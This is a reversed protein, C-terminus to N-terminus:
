TIWSFTAERKGLKKVLWDMPGTVAFTLPTLTAFGQKILCVDSNPTACRYASELTWRSMDCLGERCKYVEFQSATELTAVQVGRLTWTPVNLNLLPAEWPEDALLELLNIALRAATYYAEYGLSQYESWDRAVLSVAIGKYGRTVGELVAGVTGSSLVDWLGINPGSNVGSIVFDFKRGLSDLAIGVATAPTSDAVLADYKDFLRTLRYRAKFSISKSAGSSHNSTTAIFVDHGREAAANALARLGTSIGDDNAILLSLKV